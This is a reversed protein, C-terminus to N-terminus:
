IVSWPLGPPLRPPLLGSSIPPGAGELLVGRHRAPWLDRFIVINYKLFDWLLTTALLHSLPGWPPKQFSHLPNRSSSKLDSRIRLGLTLSSHQKSHSDSAWLLFLARSPGM